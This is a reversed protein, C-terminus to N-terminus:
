RSKGLGARIRGAYKELEDSDTKKEYSPPMHLWFGDSRYRPIIHLHAHFV